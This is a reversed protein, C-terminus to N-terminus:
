NNDGFPLTKNSKPLLYSLKTPLLSYTIKFDPIYDDFTILFRFISLFLVSVCHPFAHKEFVREVTSGLHFHWTSQNEAMIEM